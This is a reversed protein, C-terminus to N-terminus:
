VEEMRAKIITDMGQNRELMALCNSTKCVPCIYIERVCLPVSALDCKKGYYSRGRNQM